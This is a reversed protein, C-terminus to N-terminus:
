PYLIWREVFLWLYGEFKRDRIKLNRILLIVGIVVFYFFDRNPSVRNGCQPTESNDQESKGSLYTSM